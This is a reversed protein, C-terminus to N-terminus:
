HSLQMSLRRFQLIPLSDQPILVLKIAKQKHIKVLLIIIIRSLYCSDTILGRYCKGANDELYIVKNQLYIRAIAAAQKRLAHCTILYYWHIVLSSAIVIKGILLLNSVLLALLMILYLVTFLGLLQKSSSLYFIM